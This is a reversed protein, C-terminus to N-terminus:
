NQELEELNLQEALGESLLLDPELIQEMEGWLVICM